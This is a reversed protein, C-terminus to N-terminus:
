PPSLSALITDMYGLRYQEAAAAIVAIMEIRVAPQGRCKVDLGRVNRQVPVGVFSPEPEALRRERRLRRQLGPTVDLRKGALQHEEKRIHPM